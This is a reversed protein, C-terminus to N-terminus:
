IRTVSRPRSKVAVTSTRRATQRTHRTSHTDDPRLEEDGTLSLKPESVLPIPETITPYLIAEMVLPLFNLMARHTLYIIHIFPFISFAFLLLFLYYSSENPKRIM